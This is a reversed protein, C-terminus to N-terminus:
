KPTVTFATEDIYYYTKDHRNYEVSLTAIYHMDGVIFEQTYKDLGCNGAGECDEFAWGRLRDELVSEADAVTPFTNNEPSREFDFLAQNAANLADRAASVNEILQEKMNM